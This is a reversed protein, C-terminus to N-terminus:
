VDMIIFDCLARSDYFIANFEGDRCRGVASENCVSLCYLESGGQVKKNNTYQM